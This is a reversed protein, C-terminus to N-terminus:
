HMLTSSFVDKISLLTMMKVSNEKNCYKLLQWMQWLWYNLCCAFLNINNINVINCDTTETILQMMDTELIADNLSLSCSM